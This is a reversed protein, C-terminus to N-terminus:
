LLAAGSTITARITRSVADGGSGKTATVTISDVEYFAGGEQFGGDDDCVVTIAFGDLVGATLTFPGTTIAPNGCIADHTAQSDTAQAMAWEMGSSAAFHARIGQASLGSATHQVASMRLMYGGLLALVTILFITGVLTFGRQSHAGHTM